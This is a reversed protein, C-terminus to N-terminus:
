LLKTHSRLPGVLLVVLLIQAKYELIVENVDAHGQSEVKRLFLEM